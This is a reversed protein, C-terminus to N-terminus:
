AANRKPDLQPFVGSPVPYVGEPQAGIARVRAEADKLADAGDLVSVSVAYSREEGAELWIMEGRDRAFQNGMVHHTAPELGMVYHGAQFNQWQYFCPLGAVDASVEVGFGIRENLIAVSTRGDDGALAHEWVQEAFGPTPAPCTRYGVGQAELEHSAWLVDAVPAVFRAGKDIVPYGFNLHYMLMHPTVAFGANVVRDAIRVIDGGLDAEIRRHLHLVEGFVTAQEVVGEAWLVCTDGDWREGYGSLRAPTNAVRGHLGQQVVAKRLYNYSDADVEEPGGVHDLGCTALLGSFGRTWGLGGEGEGDVFAPHRVGVPSQWGVARGKHTMASIDMARDVTVDFRLGSGTEFELVRVGRGAGDELTVLRVGGFQSLRGGHAALTKADHTQDYLTTM